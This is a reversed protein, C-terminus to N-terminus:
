ISIGCAVAYFLFTVVVFYVKFRKSRQLEVGEEEKFGKEFKMIMISNLQNHLAQPTEVWRHLALVTTQYPESSVFTRDSTKVGYYFDTILSVTYNGPIDLM